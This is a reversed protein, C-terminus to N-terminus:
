VGSGCLDSSGATPFTLAVCTAHGEGARTRAVKWDGSTSERKGCGAWADTFIMTAIAVRPRCKRLGQNPAYRLRTARKNRTCSTTLEFRVAGVM